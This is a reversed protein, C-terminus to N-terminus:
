LDLLRLEARVPDGEGLHEAVRVAKKIPLVFSGSSTDPFISTQWSSSGCTVAVRVSGFGRRVGEAIQRIEEAIDPPLTVFHWGAAGPYRWLAAEFAFSGIV